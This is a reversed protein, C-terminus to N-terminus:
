SGITTAVTYTNLRQGSGFVGGEEPFTGFDAGVAIGKLIGHQRLPQFKVGVSWYGVTASINAQAFEVPAYGLQGVLFGMLGISFKGEAAVRGTSMWFLRNSAKDQVAEPRTTDAEQPASVVPSAVFLVALLAAM